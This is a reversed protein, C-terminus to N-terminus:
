RMSSSRKSPTMTVVGAYLLATAKIAQRAAAM